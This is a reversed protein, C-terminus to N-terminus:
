VPLVVWWYIANFVAIHTSTTIILFWPLDTEACRKCYCILMIMTYSPGCVTTINVTDQNKVQYLYVVTIECRIVEHAGGTDGQTIQFHVLSHKIHNLCNHTSNNIQPKYLWIPNQLRPLKYFNQGASIHKEQGTSWRESVESFMPPRWPM